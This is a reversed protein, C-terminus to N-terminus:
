LLLRQRKIMHLSARFRARM